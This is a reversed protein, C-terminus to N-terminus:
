FLRKVGAGWLVAGRDRAWLLDVPKPMKKYEVVGVLVIDFTVNLDEDYAVDLKLLKYGRGGALSGNNSIYKQAFINIYSGNDLTVHLDKIIGNYQYIRLANSKVVIFGERYINKAM